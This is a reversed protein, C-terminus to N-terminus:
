RAPASLRQPSLIVRPLLPPDSALADFDRLVNRAAGAFPASDAAMGCRTLGRQRLKVYGGAQPVSVTLAPRATEPTQPLMGDHDGCEDVAGKWSGCVRRARAEAGVAQGPQRMADRRKGLRVLADGDM